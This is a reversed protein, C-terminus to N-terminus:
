KVAACNDLSFFQSGEAGEEHKTVTAEVTGGKFGPVAQECVFGIEDRRIVYFDKSGAAFPKLDLHVKRFLIKGSAARESGELKEYRRAERVLDKYSLLPQDAQAAGVPAGVALLSALAITYAYKMQVEGPPLAGGV